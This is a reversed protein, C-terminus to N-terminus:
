QYNRDARQIIPYTSDIAPLVIPPTVVPVRGPKFAGISVTPTGEYEFVFSSGSVADGSALVNSGSGDAEVTADYIIIDTGTEFGFVTLSTKPLPYQIRQDTANTVTDIRIYTLANGTDATATTARVKLRVGVNPNIAGVGSLNAANLTLWSGNFGSGIDYQFEYTINGTQAGTITPASNALATVGLCFYPMTWTVQDGVEGMAVQGASTFAANGGTIECQDATAETPENCAILIRGATTSTWADEWHRGYVATQGTVSNTWRCGRALANLAAIAQSDAADGWVNDIVVGSVGNSFVVPSFRVNELYVRRVTIDSMYGNANVGYASGNTVGCNYPASPTGVNAVTVDSCGSTLEVISSYTHLGTLGGFASFGDVTLGAVTTAATVKIASASNTTTTNGMMADAYRVDALTVDVCNDIQM